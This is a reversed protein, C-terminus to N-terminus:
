SPFHVKKTPLNRGDSFSQKAMFNTVEDMLRASPARGKKRLDFVFRPDGLAEKGLRTPSFGSRTLFAEIDARFKDSYSM